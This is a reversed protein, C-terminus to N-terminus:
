GTRMFTNLTNFTTKARADELSIFMFNIEGYRDGPNGTASSIQGSGTIVTSVGPKLVCNGSQLTSYITDCLSCNSGGSYALCWPVNQYCYGGDLHSNEDCRICLGDEYELCGDLDLGQTRAQVLLALWCILAQCYGKSIVMTFLLYNNGYKFQDITQVNGTM